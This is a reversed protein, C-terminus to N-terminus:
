DPGLPGLPGLPELPPAAAPAAPAAPAAEAPQQQQAAERAADNLESLALPQAAIPLPAVYSSLMAEAGGGGAPSISVEATSSAPGTKAARALQAKLWPLGGKKHVFYGGAAAALLLLVLAVIVAAPSSGGGGGGPDVM